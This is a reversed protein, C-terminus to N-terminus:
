DAADVFARWALNAEWYPEDVEIGYWWPGTPGAGRNWVPRARVALGLAPLALRQPHRADEGIPQNLRLRLGGYSVDVLTGLAVGLTAEVRQAVPRRAWRRPMATRRRGRRAHLMRILLDLLLHSEIPDVLWVANQAAADAQLVVDPVPHTVIAVIDPFSARGRIVLHLGNFGGLRVATILVDPRALVLQQRAETFSAAPTVLYGADALVARTRSLAKRDVDVLLVTHPVTEGGRRM